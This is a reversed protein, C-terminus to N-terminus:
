QQYEACYCRNSGNQVELLQALKGHGVIAHRPNVTLNALRIVNDSDM